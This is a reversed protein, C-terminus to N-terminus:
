PHVTGAGSPAVKAAPARKQVQKPAVKLAWDAAEATPYVGICGSWNSAEFGAETQRVMGGRPDQGVKVFYPFALATKM